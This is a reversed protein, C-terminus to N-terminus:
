VRKVMKYGLGRVTVIEFGPNDKFKDRLRNIHVNLTHDDSESELGWIDEILQLRTFIKNPYSLLKFLLYFEKPPLVTQVAGRTVMLTNYDLTTEGLVLKHETAIQARRLLAKIRFLMEQEDFPKTMYDDTGALFGKHKDTIEHTATVMLIPIDDGTGRLENCLQYGDMGPMMLDLVILDFRRTEMRSLAELGNKATYANYGGHRLVACMLKQTNIDDEVVLIDFM